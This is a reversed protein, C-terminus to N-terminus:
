PGALRSAQRCVHLRPQVCTSKQKLVQAAAGVQAPLAQDGARAVPLHRAQDAVGLGVVGGVEARLQIVHQVARGGITLRHGLYGLGQYWQHCGEVGQGAGGMELVVDDVAPAEGIHPGFTPEGSPRKAPRQIM